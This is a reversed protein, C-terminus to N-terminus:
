FTGFFPEFRVHRFYMQSQRAKWRLQRRREWESMNRSSPEASASQDRCHLWLFTTDLADTMTWGKQELTQPLTISQDGAPIEKCADFQMADEVLACGTVSTVGYEDTLLSLGDNANDTSEIVISQKDGPAMRLPFLSSGGEAVCKWAAAVEETIKADLGFAAADASERGAIFHLLAHFLRGDAFDCLDQGTQAVQTSEIWSSEAVAGFIYELFEATCPGSAARIECTRQELSVCGTKLMVTHLMFTKALLQAVDGGAAGPGQLWKSCACACALIRWSSGVADKSVNSKSLYADVDKINSLKPERTVPTSPESSLWLDRSGSGRSQVYFGRLVNESLDIDRLILLNVSSFCCVQAFRLLLFRDEDGSHDTPPADAVAILSPQFSALFSSWAESYPSKFSAVSAASPLSRKLNQIILRRALIQSQHPWISEHSDFFVVCFLAGRALLDNLFSEVAFSLHLFQGGCSFDVQQSRIAYLLLSDGDM